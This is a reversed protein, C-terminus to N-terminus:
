CTYDCVEHLYGDLFRMDDLLKNFRRELEVRDEETIDGVGVLRIDLISKSSRIDENCAFRVHDLAVVVDHLEYENVVIECQEDDGIWYSKDHEDM